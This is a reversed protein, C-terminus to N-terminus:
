HVEDHVMVHPLEVIEANEAALRIAEEDKAEETAAEKAEKLEKRFKEKLEDLSEVSSDVDKAFEDNLKPLEKANVEHVTV